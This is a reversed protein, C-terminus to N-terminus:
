PRGFSSSVGGSYPIDQPCSSALEKESGLVSRHVLQEVLAEELAGVSWAVSVVGVSLHGPQAVLAEELEVM